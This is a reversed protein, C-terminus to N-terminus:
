CHEYIVIEEGDNQITRSALRLRRVGGGGEKTIMTSGGSNNTPPTTVKNKMRSFIVDNLTNNDNIIDIISTGPTDDNKATNNNTCVEALQERLHSVNTEMKITEHRTLLISESLAVDLKNKNNSAIKTTPETDHIREKTMAVSQEEEDKRDAAAVGEKNPTAASAALMGMLEEDVDDYGGVLPLGLLEGIRKRKNRIQQRYDLMQKTFQLTDCKIEYETADSYVSRSMAILKQKKTEHVLTTGQRYPYHHHQAM